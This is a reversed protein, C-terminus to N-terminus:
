IIGFPAHPTPEKWSAQTPHKHWGGHGAALQCRYDLHTWPNRTINDCQPAEPHHWDWFTGDLHWAAMCRDCFWTEPTGDLHFGCLPCAPTPFTLNGPIHRGM